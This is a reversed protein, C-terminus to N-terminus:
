PAEPAARLDDSDPRRGDVFTAATASTVPAAASSCFAPPLLARRFGGSIAGVADTFAGGFDASGSGRGATSPTADIRDFACPATRTSWGWARPSSPREVIATGAAPVNVTGAQRRRLRRVPSAAPRRWPSIWASATASRRPAPPRCGDLHCGRLHTPSPSTTSSARQDWTPSPPELGRAGSTTISITGARRSACPGPATSGCESPGTPTSPSTPSTFTGAHRRARAPSTASPAPTSSGARRRDHRGHRRRSGRHRRRRGVPRAAPWPRHQGLGALRRRRGRQHADTAQDADGTKLVSAGIQLTAAEGLLRQNDKLTIGADLGTTTNDGDFVFITHGAGSAAQAQALTDFPASSTGANGPDDNNVYWVCGDLTINVQGTDSAVGDTVTYTFFDSTDTCGPAPTFVFDGDSQLTVSGGDNSAFTGPTVSISASDPDTDNGLIDGSISKKPGSASPPGDTPDDVVLTTNGVASDAGNFTDDTAVPADSVGNVTITVTATSEAGAGDVAKYTFSDTDSEGTSLGQFSAGPTYTFSGNANFVLSGKSPGTVLAASKTDGPDPDTDNALVGPAAVTVATDEDTTASDDVAVPPDNVATIAIGRTALNSSALLNDRAQFSITRTSPTPGDSVNVYTVSRLATRYNAVSAAGSLTLVGTTDNYSGTIGNQDTFALDDQVSQFNASVSVTAGSLQASDPDTVTLGSDVVVPGDNETYALDSVTTTITPADNVPSIAITRTAAPGLGDGDDARFTVTKSTGPDDGNHRYRVTRLATQYNALTSTGTLTLRGTAADYSGTIGLQNTFLLEDPAQLGATVQVTAGELNM